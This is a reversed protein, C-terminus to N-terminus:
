HRNEAGPQQDDPEGRRQRHCVGRQIGAGPGHNKGAARRIFDGQERRAGMAPRQEPDIRPGVGFEGTVVDGFGKRQIGIM